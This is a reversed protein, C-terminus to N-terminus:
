AIRGVLNLTLDFLKGFPPRLLAAGSLRRERFVPKDHSFLRFGTHGHYAGMGSVGVGGFPLNDQV